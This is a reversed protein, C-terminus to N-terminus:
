NRLKHHRYPRTDTLVIDPDPNGTERSHYFPPAPAVFKEKKDNRSFPSIKKGLATLSVFLNRVNMRFSMNPFAPFISYPAYEHVSM